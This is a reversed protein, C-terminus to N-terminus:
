ESMAVYPPISDGFRRQSNIYCAHVLGGLLQSNARTVHAAMLFCSSAVAQILERTARTKYVWGCGDDLGDLAMLHVERQVHRAM